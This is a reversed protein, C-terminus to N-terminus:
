TRLREQLLRIVDMLINREEISVPTIESSLNNDTIVIDRTEVLTSGDNEAISPRVLVRRHKAVIEIRRHFM